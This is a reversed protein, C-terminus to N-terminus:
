EIGRFYELTDSQMLYYDEKCAEHCFKDNITTIKRTQMDYISFERGCIPCVSGAKPINATTYAYSSDGMRLNFFDLECVDPIFPIDVDAEIRFINAFKDLIFRKWIVYEGLHQENNVYESFDTNKSKQTKLYRKRNYLMETFDKMNGLSRHIGAVSDFNSQPVSLEQQEYCVRAPVEKCISNSTGKMAKQQKWTFYLAMEKAIIPQGYIDFSEPTILHGNLYVTVSDPKALHDLEILGWTKGTPSSHMTMKTREDIKNNM